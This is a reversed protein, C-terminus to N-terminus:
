VVSKRDREMVEHGNQAEGVVTLERDAALLQKLGERVITHDEAIVIRIM